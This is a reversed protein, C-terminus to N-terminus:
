TNVMEVVQFTFDNWSWITGGQKDRRPYDRDITVDAAGSGDGEGAQLISGGPAIQIGGLGSIGPATGLTRDARLRDKMGDLLQNLCPVYAQSTNQIDQDRGILYKFLLVIAVDYVVQKIGSTTGGYAIRRESEHSRHVFGIAGWGLQSDLRWASGDEFWPIGPGLENLGVVAPPQFWAVVADTVSQATM